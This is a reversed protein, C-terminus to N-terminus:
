AAPNRGPMQLLAVGTRIGSHFCDLIMNENPAHSAADANGNPVTFALMGMIGNWVYNKLIGSDVSNRRPEIGQFALITQAITEAM